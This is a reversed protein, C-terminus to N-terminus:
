TCMRAAFFLWSARMCVCVCAGPTPKLMELKGEASMVLLQQPVLTSLQEPTPKAAAGHGFEVDGKDTTGKKTSSAKKDTKSTGKSTGADGGGSSRSKRESRRLATGTSAAAAPAAAPAATSATSSAAAQTSPVSSTFLVSLAIGAHM